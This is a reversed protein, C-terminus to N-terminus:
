DFVQYYQYIRRQHYVFQFLQNEVPFCFMCYTADLNRPFFVYGSMLKGSPLSSARFIEEEVIEKESKTLDIEADIQKDRTVYYDAKGLTGFVADVMYGPDETALFSVTNALLGVGADMLGIVSNLEKADQGSELMEDYHYIIREPHVAM